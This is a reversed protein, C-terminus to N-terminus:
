AMCYGTKTKQRRATQMVSESVIFAPKTRKSVSKEIIRYGVYITDEEM